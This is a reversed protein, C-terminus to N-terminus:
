GPNGLPGLIMVPDKHSPTRTLLLSVPSAESNAILISPPVVLWPRPAELLQLLPSGTSGLLRWLSWGQGLRSEDGHPGLQVGSKLVTLSHIQTTELGRNSSVQELQQLFSM